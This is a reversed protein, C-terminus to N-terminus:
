IIYVPELTICCSKRLDDTIRIYGNEGWEKGM